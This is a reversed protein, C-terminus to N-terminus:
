KRRLIVATSDTYLTQWSPNNGLARALESDPPLIVWEIQYKSLVDEWGKSMTLVTEYQLTMEGTADAMSDAFIKQDPWLHFAIYGGWNLDNFMRGEQPHEELWAVAETPFFSPSFSYISRARSGLILTGFLIVIAAPWLASKVQGEVNRLISELACVGKPRTMAAVTEALTLAEAFRRVIMRGTGLATLVYGYLGLLFLINLWIALGKANLDTVAPFLWLRAALAGIWALWPLYGKRKQM